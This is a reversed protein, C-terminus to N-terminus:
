ASAAPHADRETERVLLHLAILAMLAWLLPGLAWTWLM